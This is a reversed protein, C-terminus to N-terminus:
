KENIVPENVDRVPRAKKTHEEVIQPISQSEYRGIYYDHEGNM